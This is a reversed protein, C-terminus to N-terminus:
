LLLGMRQGAERKRTRSVNCSHQPGDRGRGRPCAEEAKNVGGSTRISPYSLPRRACLPAGLVPFRGLGAWRGEAHVTVRSHGQFMYGFSFPLNSPVSDGFDPGANRTVMVLVRRTQNLASNWASVRGLCCTDTVVFGCQLM